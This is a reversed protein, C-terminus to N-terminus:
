CLGPCGGYPEWEAGLPIGELHYPEPPKDMWPNLGAAKLQLYVDDVQIKDDRAYSLFVFPRTM